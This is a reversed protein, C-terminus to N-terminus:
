SPCFVNFRSCGTDRGILAKSLIDGSGSSVFAHTIEEIAGYQKVEPAVYPRREQKTMDLEKVFSNGKYTMTRM